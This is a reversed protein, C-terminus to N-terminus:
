FQLSDPGRKALHSSRLRRRPRINVTGQRTGDPNMMYIEWNGDRNSSFVIKESDLQEASVPCLVGFVLCCLTFIHRLKM